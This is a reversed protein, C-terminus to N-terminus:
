IIESCGNKKQMQSNSPHVKILPLTKLYKLQEEEYIFDDIMGMVITKKGDDLDKFIQELREKTM